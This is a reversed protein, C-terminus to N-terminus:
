KQRLVLLKRAIDLYLHPGQLDLDSNTQKTQMSNLTAKQAVLALDAVSLLSDM